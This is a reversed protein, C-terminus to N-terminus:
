EVETEKVEQTTKIEAKLELQENISVGDSWM